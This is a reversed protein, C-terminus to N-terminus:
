CVRFSGSFWKTTCCPMFVVFCLVLQVAWPRPQQTVRPESCCPPVGPPQAHPTNPCLLCEVGTPSPCGVSMAQSPFPTSPPKVATLVLVGPGQDFRPLEWCQPSGVSPHAVTVATGLLAYAQLPIASYLAM